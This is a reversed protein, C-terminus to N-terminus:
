DQVANSSLVEQLALTKPEAVDYAVYPRLASRMYALRDPGSVGAVYIKIGTPSSPFVRGTFEPNGRMGKDAMECMPGWHSPNVDCNAKNGNWANPDPIYVNSMFCSYVKGNFRNAAILTNLRQYLGPWFDRRCGLLIRNWTSDNPFDLGKFLQRDYEVAFVAQHDDKVLLYEEVPDVSFGAETFFLGHNFFVFDDSLASLRDAVQVRQVPPLNNLESISPGAAKHLGEIELLEGEITM